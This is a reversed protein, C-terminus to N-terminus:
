SARAVFNLIEEVEVDISETKLSFRFAHFRLASGYMAEGNLKETPYENEDNLWVVRHTVSCKVSTRDTEGMYAPSPPLDSQARWNQPSAYMKIM